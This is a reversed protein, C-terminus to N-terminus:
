GRASPTKGVTGSCRYSHPLFEGLWTPQRISDQVFLFTAGGRMRVSRSKGRVSDTVQEPYRCLGLRLPECGEGLGVAFVHGEIAAVEIGRYTNEEDPVRVQLWESHWFMDEPGRGVASVEMGGNFGLKRLARDRMAVVMKPIDAM